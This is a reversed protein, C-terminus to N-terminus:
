RVRRVRLNFDIPGANDLYTVSMYAAVNRRDGAVHIGLATRGKYWPGGSDGLDEIDDNYNVVKIYTNTPSPVDQLGGFFRDRIVGCKFESINGGAGYHCM